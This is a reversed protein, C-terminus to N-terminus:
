REILTANNLHITASTTKCFAIFFRWPQANALLRLMVTM